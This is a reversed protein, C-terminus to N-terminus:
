SSTTSWDRQVVLYCRGLAELLRLFLMAVIILAGIAGTWARFLRVRLLAAADVRLLEHVKREQRAPKRVRHTRHTTM